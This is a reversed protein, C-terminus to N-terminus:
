LVGVDEGDNKGDFPWRKGHIRFAFSIAKISVNRLGALFGM